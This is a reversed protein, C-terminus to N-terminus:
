RALQCFGILRVFGTIFIDILVVTKRSHSLKISLSKGTIVLLGM